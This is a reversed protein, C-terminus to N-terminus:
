KPRTRRDQVLINLILMLGGAAAALFCLMALGPYGLIRFSTQIQMLLAAGVILAALILGLTIRNAIKQAGEIVLREDITEVKVRMENNAVLDLIKNARAPLQEVFEKFETLASFMHSPSASRRMRESTIEGAHRRIAANPDFQPALSRGIEDLHLLTKGLLALEPPVRVGSTGADHSVQLVLRGVQLDSVKAGRHASVQTTVARVLAREDFGELKESMGAIIAAAEEGRGDAIALVLKLLKEQMAPTLRGVMGLDLLALRGDETIFVNGPHPDAHFVGDVLIQHLYARFLDDALAEGDIDLRALPGVETIKRGRVYDMTLVRSTSYAEVPQPVVLRPFRELNKGLLRLNEAEQRYDLERVLSRRFEEVLESFRYRRGIATHKDALEAAQALAELDEAITERIGPRQVKVAVARGDRLAARHVQGLSAAALPQPDFEAFAKSLRVGLEQQVIAEVEAFPFPDVNDQLRSLAELYSVPLLDARTSLIQGLKVFTPGLAELDNALEEAKPEATDGAVDPDAVLQDLESREIAAARGYKVLLRAIDKYRKLNTALPM